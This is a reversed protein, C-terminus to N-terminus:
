KIKKLYMYPFESHQNLFTGGLGINLAENCFENIIQETPPSLACSFNINQVFACTIKPKFEKHM